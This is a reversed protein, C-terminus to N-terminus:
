EYHLVICKNATYTLIINYFIIHMVRWACVRDSASEVGYLAAGEMEDTREHYPALKKASPGGLM